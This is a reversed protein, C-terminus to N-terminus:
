WLKFDTLSPFLQSSELYFCRDDTQELGWEKELLQSDKDKELQLAFLRFLSFSMTFVHTYILLVWQNLHSIIFISFLGQKESVQLLEGPM